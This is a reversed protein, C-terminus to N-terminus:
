CHFRQRVGRAIRAANAMITFTLNKSSLRSFSAADAVYVARSQHLLGQPDTQYPSTPHETMPLTGAYHYSNGPAPFKCVQPASLFGVRRLASILSREVAGKKTARYNVELAGNSLLSLSGLAEAQDDPYFVQGVLTAPVLYRSVAKADGLACPFDFLYDGWLAADLTFISCILPAAFEERECMMVVQNPAFRPTAPRGLGFIDVLPFYSIQNDRLPLRTSFDRRSQLAIRASNLAGAALITCRGVYEEDVGTELNRTQVYVLEEVERYSHAIRGGRYTVAGSSCLKELTFVPNYIAPTYPQFFELGDYQYPTRGDHNETLIAVRSRGMWLGRRHFHTRHKEYRRLLAAGTETLRLPPYLGDERGFFRDLDDSTGSVGIEKTIEDYYSTLAASKFPFGHLDVDQFRLVGAGWANAFGGRALSIANHFTTSVVPSALEWDQTVFRMLPAKLKPSVYNGNINHLSEFRPGIFDEIPATGRKKHEQVSASQAGASLRSGERGVDLMLVKLGRLERAAFTGAMGSGIVIVDYVEM